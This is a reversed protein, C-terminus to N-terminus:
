LCLSIELLMSKCYRKKAFRAPEDDALSFLSLLEAMYIPFLGKCEPDLELSKVEFQSSNCRRLCSFIHALVVVSSWSSVLHILSRDRGVRIFRLLGRNFPMSVTGVGLTSGVAEVQM